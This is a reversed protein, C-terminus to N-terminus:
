RFIGVAQSGKKFRVQELPDGHDDVVEPNQDQPLTDVIAKLQELMERVKM